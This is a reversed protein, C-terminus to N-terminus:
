RLNLMGDLEDALRHLFTPLDELLFFHGGPFIECRFSGATQEQWAQLHEPRVSPDAEGGYAIIDFPLPPEPTYSYARYLRTDARLAPMIVRLLEPNELAERPIGELRKLETFFGAEDPEPSPVHGLRFQPARAGSVVLAAPLPSGRRRLARALEFAVVAGMSHGFFAFPKGLHPLIATTLAEVLPAM